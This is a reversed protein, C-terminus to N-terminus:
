QSKKIKKTMWIREGGEEDKKKEELIDHECIVYVLIRFVKIGYGFL